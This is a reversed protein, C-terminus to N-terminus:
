RLRGGRTVERRPYSIWLRVANGRVRTTSEVLPSAPVPPQERDQAAGAFAQAVNDKPQDARRSGIFGSSSKAQNPRWMRRSDVGSMRLRAAWLSSGVSCGESCLSWTGQHRPLSCGHPRMAERLINAVPRLAAGGFEQGDRDTDNRSLRNATRAPSGTSVRRNIRM